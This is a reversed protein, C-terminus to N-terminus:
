ASKLADPPLPLPTSPSPTRDRQVTVNQALHPIPQWTMPTLPALDPALQAAMLADDRQEQPTSETTPTAHHRYLLLALFAVCVAMAAVIGDLQTAPESVLGAIHALAALLVAACQIVAVVLLARWIWQPLAARRSPYPSMPTPTM